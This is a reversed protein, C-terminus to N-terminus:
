ETPEETIEEAPEEPAEEVVIPETIVYVLSKEKEVKLVVVTPNEVSPVSPNNNFRRLIEIGEPSNELTEREVEWVNSLELETNKQGVANLLEQVSKNEM